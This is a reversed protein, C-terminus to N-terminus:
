KFSGVKCMTCVLTTPACLLGPPSSLVAALGLPVTGANSLLAGLQHHCLAVTHDVVVGLAQFLCLSSPLVSCVQALGKGTRSCILLM